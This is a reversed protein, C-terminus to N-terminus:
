FHEGPKFPGFRMGAAVLYATSWGIMLFGTVGELAALMRWASAPVVDGYGVTAFTVTSLYLASELGAAVGLVLYALTWIWIEVTVVGFLGLAVAVMVAIRHPTRHLRLRERLHTAISNILMLGVVHTLVTAGILVVGIAIPMLLMPQM